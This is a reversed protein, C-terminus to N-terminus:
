KRKLLKITFKLIYDQSCKKCQIRYSTLSRIYDNSKTKEDLPIVYWSQANGCLICKFKIKASFM